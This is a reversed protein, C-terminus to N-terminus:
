VKLPGTRLHNKDWVEEVMSYQFPKPLVANAGCEEFFRVDDPLMNGTVGIIFCPDLKRRRIEKAAQPGNLIPMEYDLLVSHYPAGADIAEAVMEVAKQGDEALECQHGHHTLLKSLLKRNSLVDDVVLIRLTKREGVAEACSSSFASTGIMKVPKKYQKSPNSVMTRASKFLPLTMAFTTGQGLGASTAKLTGRHQNVIGHAIFLGLGSGEGGQLKNRNFQTGATYLRSLQEESMGAGSDEVEVRLFDSSQVNVTDGTKLTFRTKKSPEDSPQLIARVTISGEEPTFKIANSLLNRLVQKLRVEDGVVGQRRMDSPLESVLKVTEKDLTVFHFDFKLKKKVASIRFEDVTGQIIKWIKIVTVELTLEGREVKDYNLMDNLVNVSVEASDLIENVSMFWKTACNQDEAEASNSTDDNLGRKLENGTKFGLSQAMEEQILTLGMCVSNLPTRVEHSVYRVFHRKAELLERKSQFERRVVSDYGVFVIGILVFLAIATMSVRIPARSNYTMFADSPYMTMTYACGDTSCFFETETGMDTYETNHM